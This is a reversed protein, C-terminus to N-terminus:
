SYNYMTSEYTSTLNNNLKKTWCHNGHTLAPIIIVKDSHWIREQERDGDERKSEIEM